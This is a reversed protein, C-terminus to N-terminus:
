VRRRNNKKEFTHFILFFHSVTNRSPNLIYVHLKNITSHTMIKLIKLLYIKGYNKKLSPRPLWRSITQLNCINLANICKGGIQPEFEIKFMKEQVNNLKQTDQSRKISWINETKLQLLWNLDEFFMFLHVCCKKWFFEMISFVVDARRRLMITANM